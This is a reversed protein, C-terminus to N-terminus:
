RLRTDSEEYHCRDNPEVAEIEGEVYSVCGLQWTSDAMATNRIHYGRLRPWLGDVVQKLDSPRTTPSMTAISVNEGGIIGSPTHM